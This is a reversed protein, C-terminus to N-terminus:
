WKTRNALTIQILFNVMIIADIKEVHSVMQPNLFQNDYMKNYVIILM